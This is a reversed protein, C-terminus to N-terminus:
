GARGHDSFPKNGDKRAPLRVDIYEHLDLLGQHYAHLADDASAFPPRASARAKGDDPLLLGARHGARARRDPQRQGALVPQAHRADARAGRGARPREAPHPGAMQDGDFDANFAKCVLPHLQIAKGDVLRPEFAQIGLRHLTPARNLLV